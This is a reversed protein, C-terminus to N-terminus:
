RMCIRHTGIGHRQMQRTGHRATSCPEISALPSGVLSLPNEEELVMSREFTPMELRRQSEGDGFGPLSSHAPLIAMVVVAVTGV